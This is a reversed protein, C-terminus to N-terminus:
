SDPPRGKNCHRDEFIPAVSRKVARYFIQYCRQCLSADAAIGPWPNTIPSAHWFKAATNANSCIHCPGTRTGRHRKVIASALRSIRQTHTEDSSIYQAVSDTSSINTIFKKSTTAIAKIPLITPLDHICNGLQRRFTLLRYWKFDRELNCRAEIDNFACTECEMDSTLTVTSPTAKREAITRYTEHLPCPKWINLTALKPIVVGRGFSNGKNSNCARWTAVAVKDCFLAHMEDIAPRRQIGPLKYGIDELSNIQGHPQFFSKYSTTKSDDDCIVGSQFYKSLSGTQCL